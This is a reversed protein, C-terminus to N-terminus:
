NLIILKRLKFFFERHNAFLEYLDKTIAIKATDIALTEGM